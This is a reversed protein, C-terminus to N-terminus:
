RVAGMKQRTESNGSLFETEALSLLSAAAARALSASVPLAEARLRPVRIGANCKPCTVDRDQMRVDIELKAECKECLFKVEVALVEAPFAPLSCGLYDLSTGFSPVPVVCLCHPCEALGCAPDASTNLRKGCVVCFFALDSM